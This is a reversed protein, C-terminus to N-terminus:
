QVPSVVTTQGIQSLEIQISGDGTGIEAQNSDYVKATYTMDLKLMVLNGDVAEDGEDVHVEVAFRLRVSVHILWVRIFFFSQVFFGFCQCLLNFAFLATQHLLGTQM